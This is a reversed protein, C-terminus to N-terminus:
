YGYYVPRTRYASYVARCRPPVGHATCGGGSSQSPCLTPYPPVLATHPPNSHSSPPLAHSPIVAPHLRILTTYSPVPHLPIILLVTRTCCLVACHLAYYNQLFCKLAIRVAECLAACYLVAHSLEVRNQLACYPLVCRSFLRSV